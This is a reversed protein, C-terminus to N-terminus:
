RTQDLVSLKKPLFKIDTLHTKITQPKFMIELKYKNIVVLLYKM